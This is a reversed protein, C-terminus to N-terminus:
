DVFVLLVGLLMAIGALTTLPACFHHFRLRRRAEAESIRGDKVKEELTMRRGPLQWHLMMGAFTLVVAVALGIEESLPLSFWAVALGAYGKVSPVLVSFNM